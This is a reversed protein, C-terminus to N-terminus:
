ILIKTHKGNFQHRIAVKVRTNRLRIVIKYSSKKKIQHQFTQFLKFILLSEKESQILKQFVSKPQLTSLNIKTITSKRVKIKTALQYTGQQIFSAIVSFM